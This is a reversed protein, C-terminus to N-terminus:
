SEITKWNKMLFDYSEDKKEIREFRDLAEALNQAILHYCIQAEGDMVRFFFDNCSCFEAITFLLYERKKGLVTWVIRGSPQFVYKKARLANLAEWAKDFRSGFAESLQNMNERTIERKIRARRCIDKLKDLESSNRM